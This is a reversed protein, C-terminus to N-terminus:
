EEELTLWLRALLRCRSEAKARRLLTTLHYEVTVESRGRHAAIEKNTLGAAVLRLIEAMGPSLRWVTTARSVRENLLQTALPPLSLEPAAEPSQDRVPTQRNRHAQSM